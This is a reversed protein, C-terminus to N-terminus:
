RCHTVMEMPAALLNDGLATKKRMAWIMEVAKRMGVTKGATVTEMPAALM